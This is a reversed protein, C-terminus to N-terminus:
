VVQFFMLICKNLCKLIMLDLEFEVDLGLLELAHHAWSVSQPWDATLLECGREGVM